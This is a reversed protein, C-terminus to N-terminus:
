GVAIQVQAYLEGAALGSFELLNFKGNEFLVRAQFTQLDVHECRLTLTGCRDFGFVRHQTPLGHGQGQVQRFEGVSPGALRRQNLNGLQCQRLALMKENLAGAATAFAGQQGQQGANLLHLLADAL